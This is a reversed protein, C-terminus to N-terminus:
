LSPFVESEMGARSRWTNPAPRAEMGGGAKPFEDSAIDGRGAGVELTVGFSM